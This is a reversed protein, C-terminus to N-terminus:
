TCILERLFQETVPESLQQLEERSANLHPRRVQRVDVARTGLDHAFAAVAAHVRRGRQPAHQSELFERHTMGLDLDTFEAPRTRNHLVTWRRDGEEIEIPKTRNTAALLAARNTASTRAVGQRELLVEGDTM